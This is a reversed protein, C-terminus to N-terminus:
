YIFTFPKLQATTQPLDRLFSATAGSAALDGFFCYQANSRQLLIVPLYALLSLEGTAEILHDLIGYLLASSSIESLSLGWHIVSPFGRDPLSTAQSQVSARVAIGAPIKLSQPWPKIAQLCRRSSTKSDFSQNSSFQRGYHNGEFCFSLWYEVLHSLQVEHFIIIGNPINDSSQTLKGQIVTHLLSPSALSLM